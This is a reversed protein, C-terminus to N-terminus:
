FLFPFGLRAFEAKEESLWRDGLRDFGGTQRFQRLFQNIQERLGNNGKRLGIAWAEERFPALLARTEVSYRKWNRYTSLQDYIFADAKGQVVELVCAGEQDLVLPRAM